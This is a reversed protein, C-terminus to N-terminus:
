FLSAIIRSASTEHKDLPDVECQPATPLSLLSTSEDDTMAAVEEEDPEQLESLLEEEDFDAMMGGQGAAALLEGVKEDTFDSIRVGKQVSSVADSAEKMIMGVERSEVASELMIIQTEMNFVASKIVDITQNLRKKKALCYLAGKRDGQKLRKKAEQRLLAREKSGELRELRAQQLRITDELLQVTKAEQPTLKSRYSGEVYPEEEPETEVVQLSTTSGMTIEYGESTPEKPQPPLPNNPMIKKSNPAKKPSLKQFLKMTSKLPATSKIMPTTAEKGVSHSGPVASPANSKGEPKNTEATNATTTTPKTSDADEKVPTTGTAAVGRQWWPKQSNTEANASTDWWSAKQETTQTGIQQNSTTSTSPTNFQGQSVVSRSSTKKPAQQLLKKTAQQESNYVTAQISPKETNKQAPAVSKSSTVQRKSNSTRTMKPKESPASPFNLLSLGSEVGASGATSQPKKKPTVKQKMSKPESKKPPVTTTEQPTAEEAKNNHGPKQYKYGEVSAQYLPAHSNASNKEGQPEQKIPKSKQQEQQQQQQQSPKTKTNLLKLKELARQELKQKEDKQKQLKEMVRQAVLEERQQRLIDAHRQKKSLEAKQKQDEEQKRALEERKKREQAQRRLKEKLREEADMRTAVLEMKQLVQDVQRSNKVRQMKNQRQYNGHKPLGELSFTAFRLGFVYADDLRREDLALQFATVLRDAMGYYKEIPYSDLVHLLAKGSEAEVEKLHKRRTASAAHDNNNNNNNSSSTM